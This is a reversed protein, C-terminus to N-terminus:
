NRKTKPKYFTKTVENLGQECLLQYPCMSVFGKTTMCCGDTHCPYNEYDEGLGYITDALNDLEEKWVKRQEEDIWWVPARFIGYPADKWAFEIRIGEAGALVTYLKVQLSHQVKWLQESIQPSRSTSKVEHIVKDASLGDLIGVFREDELRLESSVDQRVGDEPDFQQYYTPCLSELAKTLREKAKSPVWDTGEDWEKLIAKTNEQEPIGKYFNDVFRAWLVGFLKDHDFNAVQQQIPELQAVYRWYFQKPSKLFCSLSTASLKNM